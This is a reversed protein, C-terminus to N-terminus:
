QSQHDESKEELPVLLYFNDCIWHIREVNFEYIIKFKQVCECMWFTYLREYNGSSSGKESLHYELKKNLAM